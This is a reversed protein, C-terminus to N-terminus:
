QSVRPSEPLFELIIKICEEATRGATDVWHHDRSWSTSYDRNVVDEWTPLKLGSIDTVRSEVRRQHERVDSCVLEIEIAPVGAQQAVSHWADRTLPIPNVSDAVVTRGLHLNDAAAAYAARYGADDLSGHCAQCERLAQEISDIRLYIAGFLRALERAITTKGTGPLGAFVILM